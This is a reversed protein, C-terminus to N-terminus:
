RLLVVRNNGKIGYRPAGAHICGGSGAPPRGGVGAL